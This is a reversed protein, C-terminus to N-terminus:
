KLSTDYKLYISDRGKVFLKPWLFHAAVEVSTNNSCTDLWNGQFTALIKHPNPNNFPLFIWSSVIAKVVGSHLHSWINYYLLQWDINCRSVLAVHRLVHHHCCSSIICVQSFNAIHSYWIMERPIVGQHLINLNRVRTLKSKNDLICLRKSSVTFHWCHLTFGVFYHWVPSFQYYQSPAFKNNLAHECKSICKISEFAM